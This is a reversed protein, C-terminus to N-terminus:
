YSRSKTIEDRSGHLTESMIKDLTEYIVFHVKVVLHRLSVYQVGGSVKKQRTSKSHNKKSTTPFITGDDPFNDLITFKSNLLLYKLLVCKKGVVM